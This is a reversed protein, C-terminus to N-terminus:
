TKSKEKSLSTTLKPMKSILFLFRTIEESEQHSKKYDSKKMSFNKIILLFVPSIVKSDKLTSSDRISNTESLTKMLKLTM